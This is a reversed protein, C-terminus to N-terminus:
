LKSKPFITKAIVEFSMAAMIVHLSLLLRSYLVPFLVYHIGELLICGILCVKTRTEVEGAPVWKLAVIAAICLAIFYPATEWSEYQLGRILLARYAFLNFAPAQSLDILLTVFTHWM